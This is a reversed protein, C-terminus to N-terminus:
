ATSVSLSHFLLIWEPIFRTFPFFFPIIQIQISDTVGESAGSSFIDCAASFTSSLHTSKVVPCSTNQAMNNWPLVPLSSLGSLSLILKSLLKLVRGHLQFSPQLTKEVDAFLATMKYAESPMELLSPFIGTLPGVM